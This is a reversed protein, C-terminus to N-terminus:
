IALNEFLNPSKVIKSFQFLKILILVSDSAIKQPSSNQKKEENAMKHTSITRWESRYIGEYGLLTTFVLRNYASVLVM